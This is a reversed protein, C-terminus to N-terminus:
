MEYLCSSVETLAMELERPFTKGCCIIKQGTVPVGTLEMIKAGLDGITAELPLQIDYTAINHKIRIKLETM